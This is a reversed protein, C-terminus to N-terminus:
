SESSYPCSKMTEAFRHIPSYDWNLARHKSCVATSKSCSIIDFHPYKLTDKSPIKSACVTANSPCHRESHIHQSHLIQFYHPELQPPFTRIPSSQLKPPKSDVPDDCLYECEAHLAM